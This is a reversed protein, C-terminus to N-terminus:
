RYESPVVPQRKPRAVLATKDKNVENSSGGRDCRAHDVREDQGDRQAM